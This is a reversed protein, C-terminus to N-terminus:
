KAIKYTGDVHFLELAPLSNNLDDSPYLNELETAKPKPEWEPEWKSEPESVSEPELQQKKQDM